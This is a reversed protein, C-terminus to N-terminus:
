RQKESPNDTIDLEIIKPTSNKAGKQNTVMGEYYLLIQYFFGVDRFVVFLHTKPDM